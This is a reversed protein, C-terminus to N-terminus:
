LWWGLSMVLHQHNIAKIHTLYLVLHNSTERIIVDSLSTKEDNERYNEKWLCRFPRKKRRCRAAEVHLGNANLRSSNSMRARHGGTYVNITRYKWSKWDTLRAAFPQLAHVFSKYAGVLTAWQITQAYDRATCICISWRCSTPHLSIQLSFTSFHHVRARTCM